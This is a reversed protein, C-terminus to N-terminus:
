SAVMSFITPMESRVVMLKVAMPGAHLMTIISSIVTAMKYSLKNIPGYQAVEALFMGVLTIPQATVQRVIPSVAKLLLPRRLLEEWNQAFSSGQAELLTIRM